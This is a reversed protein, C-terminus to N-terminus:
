LRKTIAWRRQPFDFLWRAKSLTSYGLILDMPIEITANVQSLDVGAVRHPPFAYGGIRTAAMMFMPTEMSAGTSDTGTSHGAPEFFDSHKELFTKDVVTISAGTDWVANAVASGFQVEVYPHFRSDFRLDQFAYETGFDDNTGVSVRNEDFFFHFCYDKLLDMGILNKIHPDGEATRALTFNQKSIPGVTISPVTILEDSSKAFVGSSSKKEIAAFRSTYEDLTVCSRAAGTDLLFRYPKDGISGDVFVEAAGVEEEDPQIILKLESM